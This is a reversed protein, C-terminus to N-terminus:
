PGMMITSTACAPGRCAQMNPLTTGWQMVPRSGARLSSGNSDTTTTAFTTNTNTNFAIVTAGALPIGNVRVTGSFSTTPPLQSQSTNPAGASDGGGGCATMLFSAAIALLALSTRRARAGDGQHNPEAMLVEFVITAM